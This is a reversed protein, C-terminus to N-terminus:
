CAMIQKSMDKAFRMARKLYHESTHTQTHLSSAGVEDNNQITEMHLFVYCLMVCFLMGRCLIVYCLVAFCLLVYCIM